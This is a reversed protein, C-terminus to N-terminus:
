PEFHFRVGGSVPVTLGSSPAELNPAVSNLASMNESDEDLLFYHGDAGVFFEVQESIMYGIDLGATVDLALESLDITATGGGVTSLDQRPSTLVTIGAGANVDVNWPGDPLAHYVGGGNLHIATFDTLPANLLAPDFPDAIDSGQLLDAGGSARLSFRPNVRFNAGVEFAPGKDQFDALDGAPIGVGGSFDVTIAEQADVSATVMTVALFAALVTSVIKRTSLM